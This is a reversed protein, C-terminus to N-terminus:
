FANIKKLELSVSYGVDNNGVIEINDIKAWNKIISVIAEGYKGVRFGEAPLGKIGKLAKMTTPQAAIIADIVEDPLIKYPQCKFKGIMSARLAILLSKQRREKNESM